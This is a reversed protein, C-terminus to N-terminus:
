TPIPGRGNDPVILVTQQNVTVSTDPALLAFRRALLELAKVKDSGRCGMAKLGMFDAFAVKALEEIVDKAEVKSETVADQLLTKVLDQVEPRRLIKYGVVAPFKTQFGCRIVAATANLDKVYEQAFLRHRDKM